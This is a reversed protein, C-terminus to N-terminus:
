VSVVYRTRFIEGREAVGSFRPLKTLVVRWWGCEVNSTHFKTLTTMGFISCLTGIDSMWTQPNLCRTRHLGTRDVRMMDGWVVGWGVVRKVQSEPWLFPHPQPPPKQTIQGAHRRRRWTHSDNSELPRPRHEGQGPTDIETERDSYHTSMQWGTVSGVKGSLFM